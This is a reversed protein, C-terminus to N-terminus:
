LEHSHEDGHGPPPRHADVTRAMAEITSHEFFLAVPLERGSLRALDKRVALLSLSTGGCDFFKERTGFTREGLVRCWIRHVARETGTRPGREGAPRDPRPPPLAARDVKGNPTLPLADLTVVAAPVMPAPLAEALHDRLARGDLDPDRPVAYAVLRRDGPRDERLIVAAGRVGPHAGLVAAVEEPEVRFGRIKVQDDARGRFMLLGDATWSALDGTRYMRGGPEDGFPCAVFREATLDPRHAYGRALGAGALHVEGTSGPPVPRLARDLVYVRVNPLPRGIPPPRDPPVTDPDLRVATAIVTAETPGYTNWLDAGARWRAALDADLREAGLVWRRIGPVSAPELASLLSPVVSAVRAGSTRIMRALAEPEAREEETALALTGGAALTVVVDLVAADFGLSAFQLTVVGPAAGLVPRMANALNLVGRHPVAVGKPRGTSGSTYIVYALQGPTPPRPSPLPAGAGLAEPGTGPEDAEPATAGEPVVTRATGFAGAALTAPVAVVVAAGSDALIHRLRAAPYEPDLPVYAGGAKWVALMGTVLDVGRPLCLGVLTEPGVGAGTLRRALRGARRDLEAYSVEDAGCRVAVASPARAVRAAFQDLVTGPPVPRATDNWRTLMRSREAADLIGLDALRTRPEAAVQALVRGLRDLLARATEADFLAKAYELHVALGEPAGDPGHLERAMVSLDFKSWSGEFHEFGVTLGPFAAEPEPTNHFTFGIQFLSQRGPSRDPNLVEVLRDFPLDQHHYADLDAERVRGVLETFSPNGGTDTRLVLTNLFYGVLDNLVEDVRGAVPVGLPIDDGAGLRSLLAAVAAQTVMSVTADCQRAIALLGRHTVADTRATLLGGRRDAVAPRRRDYPLDLGAPLEALARTWYALQRGLLSQPDNEDGLLEQQWSAFDAYRVPLPTWAPARGRSRATYALSLDRLLIGLSWGDVVIHHLVVLLVHEGPAVAFLTARWPPGAELDFGRDAEAALARRLGDEDTDVRAVPAGTDDLVQQYPTGDAEGYGTRLVEHRGVTDRWAAELAPIDLPGGLRLCLTMNHSGDPGTLRDTFWMRRQGASMPVRAPREARVVAPRVEALGDLRRSLAAPTPFEFVTRSSVEAGLAARIRGTLRITLLSDGGARFFDDDPGVRPVDLVEAFLSCLLERRPSTDPHPRATAPEAPAPLAARDVKGNATLPLRDLVVTASPLMPAPLRGAAYRDVAAGPPSGPDEPVVYAVLRKNGARDARVAVAAQAVGPCRALVAAVEDPEVRHGNIKVQDDTRGHFVLRGDADWSVLDGTRYMRSGPLGGFPSAVFREATLARQGHYGRALGTGTIYLEGPVGAPVPRLARDLVHLGAGARPGGLPLAAPPSAGAPLTHVTACLTTETPGYLHRVELEPCAALVQAVSEAPVVDGGTLVHRLGTLCHPSEQALVRFLGATLHLSTLEAEAILGTLLDPDPTGGPAVVVCGGSLLPVWIELTAADFTHPAHFLMRGTAAGGWCPDAALAAVAGHTVTVGKPRGTSGSTYLVSFASDPSVHAALPTDDPAPRAEAAVPTDDPAAPADPLAPADEAALADPATSRRAAPEPHGGDAGAGAGTDGAGAGAGAMTGDEARADSFLHALTDATVALVAEADERLFATREAPGDPDLPVFSAGARAVALLTMLLEASRPLSVIVRDGATVGRARLCRAARDVEADLEAYTWRAPGSVLAPRDGFRRVARAFSENVTTAPPAPAGLNVGSTLRRREGELMVDVEGVPVSTDRAFQELVRALRAALTRAGARDLLDPRYTLRHDGSMANLVLPYHAADRGTVELLRVGGGVDRASSPGVDALDRPFNQVVVLTDFLERSGSLQQIESLSLHEHTLLAAQQEFMRMLFRKLTESDDWRVRVPVTNVFMGVMGEIGPVAPPRGSVTAGLVVDERGTLRGLLLAWAGRILTSTTVGSERARLDLGGAVAAPLGVPVGVPDVPARTGKGPAILSPEAGSLVGRWATAAADRDRGALWSLYASYPAVPPLASERCGNEYLTIWERLLISLSWGDCLIHHMALVIRYNEPGLRLAIVRFLPPEALDFRRLWEASLVERLEADGAGSLDVDTWPVRVERLVIQVADASAVSRFGARLPAHRHALVRLAERLLATDLPGEFHLTTQSRYVDTAEPDYGSHFFMGKQMATLPWIDAIESKGM